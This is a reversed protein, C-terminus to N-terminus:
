FPKEGKTYRHTDTRVGDAKGAQEATPEAKDGARRMEEIFKRTMIHPRTLAAGVIVGFAGYEMCRRAQEPTHIRGEAFVPVSLKQVM